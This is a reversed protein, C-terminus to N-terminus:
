IHILSLGPGEGVLHRVGQWEESAHYRAAAAALPDDFYCARALEAQDPQDRLWQVAQEWSMAPAQSSLESVTM